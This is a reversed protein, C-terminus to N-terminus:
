GTALEASIERLWIAIEATQDYSVLPPEEPLWMGGPDQTDLLHGVISKALDLADEDKTLNALVAAGWAVKHSYHFSRISDGCSLAFDLYSRASSLYAADGTAQYLKGLFAMPYGIMFYAQQPETASVWHFMAAEPACETIPIGDADLRLYFAAALDPQLAACRELMRAAARATEVDGLYLAALGLHANTLVDAIPESETEPDRTLIGDLASDHFGQLYGYGRCSVDFRGLKHAAIVIWANPYAWYEQFAPNDSKLGQRTVFDGNPTMFTTVIHNLVGHAVTLNGSCHMLYPVKYHAALDTVDPGFGGSESLRSKLYETARNSARDMTRLMAHDIEAM